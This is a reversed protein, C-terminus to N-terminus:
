QAPRLPPAVVADAGAGVIWGELPDLDPPLGFWPWGARSAWAAQLLCIAADLTDGSADTVMSERLDAGTQLRLGVRSAGAELAQLM